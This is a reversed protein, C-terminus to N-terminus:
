YIEFQELLKKNGDIQYTLLDKYIGERTSLEQPTGSDVIRGDEVVIIKNVNRITSFRHAIIIVLRNKMLNELASQVESESKSDLSSTAEDLILIPSNKLIARAIQIRQKQGGSLRVGREGVESNLQNPLKMVFDYANAQKLATLIEDEKAHTGYAVNERITSSFLENEQFVLAINNRIIHHDLDKYNRDKMIIDGETPNYFKLILNVITSKGVGSHGVLAVKEGHNIKFNIDRLIMESKEYKFSVHKFEINPESIREIHKKSEFQEKSPLDLIEFYEKSGSDAEQLRTLIFSMAFLPRRSLNVLQLLLVMEGVTMTGQFAGYFILINVITLIITLSANRLFDYTHYAKSQRAYVKNSEFMNDSILQYENKENSFSKVLKINGIVEQIRARTVDEIRNKKEEEQGWKTTSMKTLYYYIPFLSFIAIAVPINFFAMAAITYVSQLLSPFLFNTFSNVFIQINNIGRSLQNLIKGSLESDFYSQPLTLVKHYFRETLFKRLQGALHDGLRNSVTTLLVGAFGLGFGIGILFLLKNLDGGTGDIKAVIEDVIYKSVIPTVLDFMATVFILAVQIGIITHLPKSLKVIKWINKMADNYCRSLMLLIIYNSKSVIVIGM